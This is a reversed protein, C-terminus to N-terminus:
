TVKGEIPKSFLGTVGSALGTLLSGGGELLGSIIFLLLYFFYYIFLLILHSSVYYKPTYSFLSPIVEM